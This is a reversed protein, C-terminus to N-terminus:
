LVDGRGATRRQLRDFRHAVGAALDYQHEGHNVAFFARGFGERLGAKRKAREVLGAFEQLPSPPAEASERSLQEFGDRGEDHGAMAAAKRLSRLSTQSAPCGRREQRASAFFVHIALDLGAM